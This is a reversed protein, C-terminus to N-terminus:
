TRTARWEPELQAMLLEDHWRGDHFVNERRRGEIAFGAATYARVARENFAWVNLEIRHLGLEDFGYRVMLRTADTGLGRGWFPPGIIIGFVAFREKVDAGFLGVHGVFEDTERTLVSFGAGLVTDENTGWGRMQDQRLGPPRPRVARANLVAVQPQAWWQELQTAEDDTTARLRVTDGILLEDGYSLAQDLSTWAPHEGMAAVNCPPM